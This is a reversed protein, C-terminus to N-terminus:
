ICSKMLVVGQTAWQLSLFLFKSFKYRGCMSKLLIGFQWNEKRRWIELNRYIYIYIRIKPLISIGFNIYSLFVSKNIKPLISLSGLHENPEFLNFRSFKISIPPLPYIAWSLLLNISLKTFSLSFIYNSLWLSFSFYVSGTQLVLRLSAHNDGQKNIM